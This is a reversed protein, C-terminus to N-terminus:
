GTLEAAEKNTKGIARLWLVELKRYIRADETKKKQVAIEERQEANIQYTKPMDREEGKNYWRVKKRDSGRYSNLILETGGREAPEYLANKITIGQGIYKLL